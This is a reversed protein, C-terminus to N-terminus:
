VVTVTVTGPIAVQSNTISLDGTPVTINVNYVGDIGMVREVVENIIVDDGIGLSQVYVNIIDEAKTQVVSAVVGPLVTMAVAVNVPVEAASYVVCTDGAAKYGEVANRSDDVYGDIVKQAQAVLNSSAGGTSTCVYCFVLGNSQFLGKSEAVQETIQGNADTLYAQKAGFEIAAFTGRSLTTIYEVFRLRREEETEKEKGNALGLANTVSSIGSITNKMVTITNPGTNGTTGPVTCVVNVNVSTQGTLLTADVSTEYVKSSDSVAVQTGKPIPRDSTAPSSSSFAVVGSAKVASGIEFGFAQYIATPIAKRLAVYFQYDQSEMEIALSEFKSRM